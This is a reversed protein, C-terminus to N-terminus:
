LVKYPRGMPVHQLLVSPTQVPSVVLIELLNKQRVMNTKKQKKTFAFSVCTVPLSLIYPVVKLTKFFLLRM